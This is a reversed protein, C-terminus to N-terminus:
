KSGSCSSWCASDASCGELRASLGENHLANYLLSTLAALQTNTVGRGRHHEDVDVFGRSCNFHLCPTTCGESCRTCQDRTLFYHKVLIYFIYFWLFDTKRTRARLVTYKCCWCLASLRANQNTSPSANQRDKWLSIQNPFFM